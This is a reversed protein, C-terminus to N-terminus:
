IMQSVVLGLFNNALERIPNANLMQTQGLFAEYYCWIKNLSDVFQTHTTLKSVCYTPSAHTVSCASLRVQEIHSSITNASDNRCVGAVAQLSSIVSSAAKYHEMGTEHFKDFSNALSSLGNGLQLCLSFLPGCTRDRSTGAVHRCSSVRKTKDAWNELSQRFQPHDQFTADYQPFDRLNQLDEPITAAMEEQEKRLRNVVAAVNMVRMRM